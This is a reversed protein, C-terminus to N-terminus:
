YLDPVLPPKIRKHLVDDWNVGDFWPHRMIEKISQPRNNPNKQMMATMLNRVQPSFKPLNMNPHISMIKHFM